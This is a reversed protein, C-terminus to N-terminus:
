LYFETNKQQKLVKENYIAEGNAIHDTDDVDVELCLYLPCCGTILTAILPKPRM